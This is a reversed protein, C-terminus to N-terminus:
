AVEPLQSYDVAMWGLVSTVASPMFEAVDQAMYGRHVTGPEEWRYRFEYTPLDGDSVLRIDDKLRRDSLLTTLGGLLGGMTNNWQGMQQGYQQQQANFNGNILGAIDTTPMQGGQGSGRSQSQNQVQSGGMLQLMEGVSQQRASQDMGFQTSRSQNTFGARDRDMGVMRAQEDGAGLIASMRADNVGQQFDGEAASYARSGMSLGRNALNAEMSARDRDINPQMRSMLADEVKQRDQSFDNAGYSDLLTPASPGRTGLLDKSLQGAQAAMNGQAGLQQNVIRQVPQSMTETQTFTPVRIKQGGPGMVIKSGTQRTTLGGYATRQNMNGMVTNAIGSSINSRNQAQSTQFPDPAEPAEPKDFIGM